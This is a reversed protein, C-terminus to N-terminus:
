STEYFAAMARAHERIIKCLEAPAEVVAEKGYGLVWWAIEDVGDVDVEYIMSQGDLFLTQQTPHWLVEEVNHAVKPSFRIRVHYRRDGRIMQWANGFYTAPDFRPDVRFYKGTPTAAIFRELKFTRTEEHISSYGIVYWARSIFVLRYPDIRTRIERKEYYSDYTVNLSERKQVAQWLLEFPRAARSADVLPGHRVEIQELASGCYDQIARPLMSEIKMMAGAAAGFNPLAAETGYKSLVMTLGLVEPLTFNVPPLFFDREIVYSRAAGDYVLPIGSQKLLNLDRFLTRRSVNFERALDPAQYHRGTQLLTILKLLRHIRTAKVAPRRPSGPVTM